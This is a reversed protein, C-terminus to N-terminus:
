FMQKSVRRFVPRGLDQLMLANLKLPAADVNALVDLLPNNGALSIGATSAYTIALKIPGIDLFECFFEEINQNLMTTSSTSISQQYDDAIQQQNTSDLFTLASAFMMASAVLEEDVVVNAEQLVIQIMRYANKGVSQSCKNVTLCFQPRQSESEQLRDEQRAFVIPYPTTRNGNDIQFEGTKIVLIREGNTQQGLEVTLEKISAHVIDTLFGLRKDPRDGVLSIGVQPFSITVTAERGELLEVLDTSLTEVSARRSRSVAGPKSTRSYIHCIKTRGRVNVIVVVEKGVHVPKHEKIEELSYEAVVPDASHQIHTFQLVVRQGMVPQPWTWACSEHPSVILVGEAVNVQSVEVCIDETHNRVLYPPSLLQEASITLTQCGSGVNVDMQMIDYEPKAYILSSYLVDLWLMLDAKSPCKLRYTRSLTALEIILSKRVNVVATVTRTDISGKLPGGKFDFYHLQPWAFLFFRKKYATRVEGMKEMYGQHAVAEVTAAIKDLLLEGSSTWDSMWGENATNDAGRYLVKVRERERGPVDQLVGRELVNVVQGVRLTALKVSHLECNQTVATKSLVRACSEGKINEAKRRWTRMVLNNTTAFNVQESWSCGSEIKRVVVNSSRDRRPWYIPETQGPQIQVSCELDAEMQRVEIPQSLQNTVSYQPRLEVVKTRRFKGRGLHINTSVDFQWSNERKDQLSFVGSTGVTTLSFKKSWGTEYDRWHDDLRTAACNDAPAVSGNSRDISASAQIAIKQKSAIFPEGPSDSGDPGAFSTYGITDDSAYRLRLGTYNVIWYPCWVTLHHGATSTDDPQMKLALVHGDRDMMEITSDAATISCRSSWNYGYTRVQIFAGAPVTCLTVSGGRRILGPKHDISALNDSSSASSYFRYELDSPLLNTLILPKAVHITIGVDRRRYVNKVETRTIWFMHPLQVGPAADCVVTTGQMSAKENATWLPPSWGYVAEMGAKEPRIRVSKSRASLSMGGGVPIVHESQGHEDIVEMCVDEDFENNVFIRSRVSIVKRDGVFHVCSVVVQQETKSIFTHVSTGVKEVQFSEKSFGEIQVDICRDESNSAYKVHLLIQQGALLSQFGEAHNGVQVAPGCRYLVDVGPLDNQLILDSCHEAVLGSLPAIQRTAVQEAEANDPPSLQSLSHMWHNTTLNLVSLM